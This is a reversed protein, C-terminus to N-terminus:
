AHEGGDRSRTAWATQTEYVTVQELRFRDSVLACDLTRFIHEAMNEATAPLDHYEPLDSLDAHDYRSLVKRQVIGKLEGFHLIMGTEDPRGALQVQLRYTHGHLRACNGYIRLNDSESLDRLHLRHAAHFSFEKTITLM